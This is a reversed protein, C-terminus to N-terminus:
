AAIGMQMEIKRALVAFEMDTLYAMLREPDAARVELTELAPLDPVHRLLVLERSLLAVDRQAILNARQVASCPLAVGEAAAELVGDLDGQARLLAAATKAGIKDIGPVNDSADGVLALYDVIQGPAVGHKKLCADEDVAINKLPDHIAIGPECLLQLMDKDGSHITVEGGAAVIQRAYTALVDDAEWGDSRISAVAFSATADPVMRLQATLDPSREPRNGKYAAFLKDRGSHGGDQIVALHTCTSARTLSWLMECYGLIAGVPTGDSRKFPPMGYFYRHVFSGADILHVNM